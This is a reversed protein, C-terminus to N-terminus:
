NILNLFYKLSMALPKFITFRSVALKIIKVMLTSKEM